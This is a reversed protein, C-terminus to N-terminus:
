AGGGSTFISALWGALGALGLKSTEIIWKTVKVGGQAEAYSRNLEDVSGKLGAIAASLERRMESMEAKHESRNDAITTLLQATLRDQSGIRARMDALYKYHANLEDRQQDLRNFVAKSLASVQNVAQQTQDDM